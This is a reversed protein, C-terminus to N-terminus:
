NFYILIFILNNIHIHFDMWKNLSDSELSKIIWSKWGNAPQNNTYNNNNNNISRYITPRQTNTKIAQDIGMHTEFLAFERCRLKWIQERFQNIASTLIEGLVKDSDKKNFFISLEQTLQLPIFGRILYDFTLLNTSESPYKWCDLNHWSAQLTPLPQRTSKTTIWQEFSTKTNDLLTKLLPTLVPCSWIHSWTEKDNHCLICNWEAQYLDPRRRTQLHALLPLEDLMLKTSFSIRSSHAYSTATKSMNVHYNFTSWTANWNITKHQHFTLIDKWRGLHLLSFFNYASFIQKILSRTNPSHLQICSDNFQYFLGLPLNPSPTSPYHPRTHITM